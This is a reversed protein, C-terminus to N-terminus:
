NPLANPITTTGGVLIGQYSKRDIQFQQGAKKDKKIAVVTSAIDPMKESYYTPKDIHIEATQAASPLANALMMLPVACGIAAKIM